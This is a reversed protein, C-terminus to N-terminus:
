LKTLKLLPQNDAWLLGAHTPGSRVRSQDLQDEPRAPEVSCDDAAVANEEGHEGLAFAHAPRVESPDDAEAKEGRMDGLRDEVPALRAIERAGLDAKAVEPCRAGGNDAERCHELAIPVIPSPIPTPGFTVNELSEGSSPSSNSGDTGRLILWYTTPYRGAVKVEQSGPLFDRRGGWLM